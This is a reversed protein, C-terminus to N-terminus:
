ERQGWSLTDFSQSVEIGFPPDPHCLVVSMFQFHEPNFAQPQPHLFFNSQGSFM